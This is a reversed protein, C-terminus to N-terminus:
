CTLQKINKFAVMKLDEGSKEEWCLNQLDESVYVRKKHPNFGDKSYKTLDYGVKTM